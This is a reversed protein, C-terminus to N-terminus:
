GIEGDVWRRRAWDAVPWLVIGVGAYLMVNIAVAVADVVLPAFLSRPDVAELAALVLSSPWLWVFWEGVSDRFVMTRILVTIPVIAGLVAWGEVWRWFFRKWAM